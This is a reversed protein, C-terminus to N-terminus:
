LLEKIKPLMTESTATPEFRAAVHGERDILLFKTFNWKIDALNKEGGKTDQVTFQYVTGIDKTTQCEAAAMFFVVMSAILPKINMYKLLQKNAILATM